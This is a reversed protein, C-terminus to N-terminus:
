QFHHCECYKKFGLTNFCSVDEISTKIMGWHYGHEKAQLLMKAVFDVVVDQEHAMADQSRLCRFGAIGAGFFLEGAMMPKDQYYGIFLRIPDNGHFTLSGIKDFYELAAEKEELTSSVVSAFDKISSKTLVQLVKWEPIYKLKKKFNHINLVLCDHTKKITLGFYELASGLIELPATPGVIWSFPLKKEKFYIMTRKIRNELDEPTFRTTCVYNLFCASINTDVLIFDDRMIIEIKPHRSAFFSMHEIINREIAEILHDDALDTLIWSRM